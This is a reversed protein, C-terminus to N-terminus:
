RPALFSQGEMERPKSLGFASLVSPALDILRPREGWIPRNMFLIGPVYSPDVLHDGSWKKKNDIFLGEPAGGIATQWSARYGPKLGVVLDPGQAAYPGRYLEENTYVRRIVTEGTLPDKIEMLQRALREKLAETEEPAVTGQGERGQLNLYISNFGLAYARTGPWAVRGFLPGDPDAGPKAPRLAMWGNQALWSNLHIARRFSGFGHDSFVIVLTTDDARDLVKGLIADMRRYYDEVVSGFRANGEADFAPHGEDEFRWFMHQIRDTTDFVFALVGRDLRDLEYWLMAEREQMVQDCLALFVEEDFRHESLGKTDEPMGLTHYLGIAQALEKAYGEPHSIPFAPERPDVHIPTMYLGLEPDTERLIFRVMGTARQMFGVKFQVTVWPSWQGKLLTVTSGDVTLKATGDGENLDITLPVEAAERGRLGQVQPGFIATKIVGNVAGVTIVKERGEEESPSPATSYYTYTGLNGRLDPVGLGALIRTAAARPPFTLPWRVLSTPIGADTTLDWFTTGKRVPAFTSGGLALASTKSQLISLDPLYTKPNRHIFDFIGHYGPNSGTALSSWAVPSQPPNSTAFRRYGGLAKLRGFNPLHGAALMREVVRADLGDMGLLVARTVPSPRIVTMDAHREGTAGGALYWVLGGVLVIAGAVSSGIILRRCAPPQAKLYGLLKRFPWLLFGLVALLGALLPALASFIVSTTGPDIYAWAPPPQVLGGALGAALGGVWWSLRGKRKAGRGRD